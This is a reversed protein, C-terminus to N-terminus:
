GGYAQMLIMLIFMGSFLAGLCFGSVFTKSCEIEERM